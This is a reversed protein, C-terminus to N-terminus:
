RQEEGPEIIITVRAACLTEARRETMDPMKLTLHEGWTGKELTELNLRIKSAQSQPRHLQFGTVYGRWVWGQNPEEM